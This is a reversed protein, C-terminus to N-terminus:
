FGVGGEFDPDRRYFAGVQTTMYKCIPTEDIQIFDVAIKAADAPKVTKTVDALIRDWDGEVDIGVMFHSKGSATATSGAVLVLYAARVLTDQTFLDFLNKVLEAPYDSPQGVLVETNEDVKVRQRPQFISGDLLDSIERPTFGKAMESGPNLFVKEGRTMEFFNRGKFKLYTSPGKIMAQMRKVSSFIPLYRVSQFDYHQFHVKTGKALVENPTGSAAQGSSLVYIEAELLDRYFQPRDEPNKVAQILSRELANEPEFM